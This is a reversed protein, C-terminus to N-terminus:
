QGARDTLLKVLPGVLFQTEGFGAGGFRSFGGPGPTGSPPTGNGFPRQGQGGGGSQRSAQATARRAAREADSLNAGPTGGPGRDGAPAQPMGNEQMWTRLDADKLQMAAIAQVQESTMAGEIQKLVANRETQDRLAAGQFAQWLPLLTRAQVPTVANDTGELKLTGLELQAMAPLAGEYAVPLAQSVYPTIAIPTSGAAGAGAQAGPAATSACGAGLLAFSILLISFKLFRM